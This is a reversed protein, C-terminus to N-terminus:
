LGKSSCFVETTNIESTAIPLNLYRFLVSFFVAKPDCQAQMLKKTHRKSESSSWCQKRSLHIFNYVAKDTLSAQHIQVLNDNITFCEFFGQNIEFQHHGM